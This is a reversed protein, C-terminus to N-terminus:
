SGNKEFDYETQMESLTIEDIKGLDLLIEGIDPREKQQILLLDEIDEAQVYGLDVAIEGFRRKDDVQADLVAFVQKVTLRREKLAIQGIPRSNDRQINLAEYIADEEVIGKELLYKCFTHDSM